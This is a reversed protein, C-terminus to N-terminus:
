SLKRLGLRQNGGIPQFRVTLALFFAVGCSSKSLLKPLLPTTDRYVRTIGISKASLTDILPKTVEQSNNLARPLGQDSRALCKLGFTPM